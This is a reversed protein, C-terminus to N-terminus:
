KAEGTLLAIVTQEMEAEEPFRSAFDTKRFYIEWFYRDWAGMGNPYSLFSSIWEGTQTHWYARHTVTLPQGCVKLPGITDRRLCGSGDSTGPITYLGEGAYTGSHWSKIPRFVIHPFIERELTAPIFDLGPTLSM